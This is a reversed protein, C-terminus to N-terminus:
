PAPQPAVHQWGGACEIVTPFYANAASCFLWDHGERPAQEDGREIYQVPAPAEIWMYPTYYWAALFGAGAFFVHRHASHRHGSHSHSRGGGSKRALVPESVMIAALCVILVASWKSLKM